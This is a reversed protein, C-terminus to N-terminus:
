IHGVFSIAKRHFAMAVLERSDVGVKDAVGDAMRSLVTLDQDACSPGSPLAWSVTVWPHPPM